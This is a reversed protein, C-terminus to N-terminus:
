KMRISPSMSHTQVETIAIFQGEGPEYRFMEGTEIKYMWGHISLEKRSLRAAVAPHTRLNEIQVLVNVQAGVNLLQIDSLGSYNEKVIRRTAEAHSLWACVVPVQTLNEPHLLGNM